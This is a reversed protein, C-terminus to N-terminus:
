IAKTKKEQSGFNPEAKFISVSVKKYLVYTLISVMIGKVGNFPILGVTIYQLIQASSMKMGFAPLLFYVNVIIAFVEMFIIGVFLGLIATKKSKSRHYILAAPLVLSSGILFNAVEGVFGSGTGKIFVILVNKVLEIVVGVIPGFGFGGLLAPVDSFDIQLWPFIPIIPFEIYRLILAIASLLSIKVLKDTNRNM